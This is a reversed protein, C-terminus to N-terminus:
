DLAPPDEKFGGGDDSRYVGSDKGSEVTAYNGTMLYRTRRYRKLLRSPPGEPDSSRRQFAASLRM